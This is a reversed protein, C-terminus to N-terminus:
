ARRRLSALHCLPNPFKRVHRVGPFRAPQGRVEASGRGGGGGRSPFLSYVGAPGRVGVSEGVSSLTYLIFVIGGYEHGRGETTKHGVFM